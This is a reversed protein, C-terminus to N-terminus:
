RIWKQLRKTFEPGALAKAIHRAWEKFLLPDSKFLFVSLKFLQAVRKIACFNLDNEMSGKAIISLINQCIKPHLRTPLVELMGFWFQYLMWRRKPPSAGHWMGDAHLRYCGMIPSIGLIRGKLSAVIWSSWDGLQIRSSTKSLSEHASKRLVVSCTPIFNNSLLDETQPNAHLFEPYLEASPTHCTGRLIYSQHYTLSLDPESEMIEVQTQLKNAATWFDDGDCYAVYDGRSKESFISHLNSVIGSGLINIPQIMTVIVQPHKNQYRQIIEQTRDTSADEHIIIEVPFTTEQMLFSDLAQGLFADHNHTACWISVLPKTGVPWHQTSVSQPRAKPIFHKSNM